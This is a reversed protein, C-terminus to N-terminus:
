EETNLSCGTGLPIWIALVRKLLPPLYMSLLYRLLALMARRKSGSRMRRSLRRLPLAIFCVRRLRKIFLDFCLCPAMALLDSTM